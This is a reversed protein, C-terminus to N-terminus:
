LMAEAKRSVPNVESSRKFTILREYENKGTSDKGICRSFYIAPTYSNEPSRRYYERGRYVVIAAGYQDSKVVSAGIRSWDFTKFDEMRATFNLAKAEPQQQELLDAIRELAIAIRKLPGSEGAHSSPM